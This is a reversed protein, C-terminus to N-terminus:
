RPASGSGAAITRPWLLQHGRGGLIAALAYLPLIHRAGINMGAQIAVALYVIWPILIFALERGKRLRGSAMAWLAIVVLALLGLTTKILIAVPFYWWVGHAYVKGFIFTPYFEAMRKVDVLGMLYSEPLLHLRAFAMVVAANFHGLPPAYDALSTSLALGAPRAAYRFGYFAWLVM